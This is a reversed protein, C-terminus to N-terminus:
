EKLVIEAVNTEYKSDIDFEGVISKLDDDTVDDLKKAWVARWPGKAWVKYNEGDTPIWKSKLQLEREIKGKAPIEVLADRPAPLMRKIKIGLSELEESGPKTSQIHYTGSDRSLRDFPADWTLITLPTNDHTNSVTVKLTSDEAAPEIHVELNAPTPSSMMPKQDQYCNAFATTFVTFVTLARIAKSFAM